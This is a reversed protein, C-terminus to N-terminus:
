LQFKELKVSSEDNGGFQRKERVLGDTFEVASEPEVEVAVLTDGNENVIKEEAPFACVAAVAVMLVVM